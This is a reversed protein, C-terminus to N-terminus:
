VSLAIKSVAFHWPTDINYKAYGITQMTMIFASARCSANYNDQNPLGIILNFESYRDAPCTELGSYEFWPM